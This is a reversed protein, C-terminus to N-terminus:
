NDIFEIKKPKKKNFKSIKQSNIINLLGQDYTFKIESGNSVKLVEKNQINSELKKVLEMIKNSTNIKMITKGKKERM